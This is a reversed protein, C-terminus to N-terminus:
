VDSQIRQGNEEISIRKTGDEVEKDKQNVLRIIIEEYSENKTIKLTKLHESLEKSIRITTFM